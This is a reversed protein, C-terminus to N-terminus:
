ESKLHEIFKNYIEPLSENKRKIIALSTELENCDIVSSYIDKKFTNYAGLPVIANLDLSKALLIATKADDVLAIVNFNIKNKKFLKSLIDYFRRYIVLNKNSLEKLTIYENEKKNSTIVMPEKKLLIYDYNEKAFPTRTIALDIIRKDLMDLLIFTNGETIKFIANNEDYFDKLKHDYLLSTSSTVTGINLIKKNKNKLSELDDKISSTFSLITSAKEYLIKGAETLKLQKGREFLITNLENELNKMMRSLPPQSIHLEKSAKLISGADVVTKFYLLEKLEM